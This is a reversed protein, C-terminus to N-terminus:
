CAWCHRRPPLFRPPFVRLLTDDDRSLLNAMKTRYNSLYDKRLGAADTAFNRIALQLEKAIM